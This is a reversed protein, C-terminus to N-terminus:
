RVKPVMMALQVKYVQQELLVLQFLRLTPVRHLEHLKGGLHIILM